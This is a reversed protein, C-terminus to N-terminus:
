DKLVVIEDYEPVEDVFNVTIEYDRLANLFLPSYLTNLADEAGKRADELIGNDLAINKSKQSAIYTLRRIEQDTLKTALVTNLSRPDISPHVSLVNPELMSIVIETKGSSTIEKPFFEVSYFKALDVGALVHSNVRVSYNPDVAWDRPFSKEFTFDLESKATVLDMVKELKHSGVLDRETFNIITAYDSIANSIFEISKAVLLNCLQDSIYGVGKETIKTLYKKNFEKKNREIGANILARAIKHKEIPSLLEIINCTTGSLSQGLAASKELISAKEVDISNLYALYEGHAEDTIFEKERQYRSFITDQQEQSFDGFQVLKNLIKSNLDGSFGKVVTRITPETKSLGLKHVTQQYNIDRELEADALMVPAGILAMEIISKTDETGKGIGEKLGSEYGTKQGTEFGIIKGSDNGTEFGKSYSVKHTFLVAGVLLAACSLILITKQLLNM